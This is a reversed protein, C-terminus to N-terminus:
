PHRRLHSIIADRVFEMRQPPLDHGMRDVILLDADPIAAATAYGGSVDVLPDADGHIVLTPVAVTTLRETRDGSALIAAMHRGVGEPYFARDYAEAVRDRARQEDFFYPGWTLRCADIGFEIARGREQPTGRMLIAAAAATAQGVDPAGTTSMLSTLTKLRARHEIAMMQGIMGGMSVGIAHARDIGLHDLLGIGDSAMDSLTYVVDPEEGTLVARWVQEIHAKHGDFRTSLGVDRNDYRIAFYGRDALSEVAKEEWAILQNGMGAVLLIAPKAPDGITDYEITIGNVDASPM